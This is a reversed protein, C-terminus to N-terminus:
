AIHFGSRPRHTHSVLCAAFPFIGDLCSVVTASSLIQALSPLLFDPINMRSSYSHLDGGGLFRNICCEDKSRLM